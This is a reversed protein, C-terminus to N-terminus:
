DKVFRLIRENVWEPQDGILMHGANPVLKAQIGPILQVARALAQRPNYLIERDGILLLVALKITKLEDDTLSPRLFMLARMEPVSLVM